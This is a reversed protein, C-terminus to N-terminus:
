VSKSVFTVFFTVFNQGHFLRQNAAGKNIDIRDQANHNCLFLDTVEM